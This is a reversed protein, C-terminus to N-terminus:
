SGFRQQAAQRTVGLAAGIITWSDGADRASQVADRLARESVEVRQRAKVIRRFHQADTAPHTRSSVGDLGRTVENRERSGAVYGRVVFDHVGPAGLTSTENNRFL